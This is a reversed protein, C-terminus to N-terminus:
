GCFAVVKCSFFYIKKKGGDQFYNGKETPKTNLIIRQRKINELISYVIFLHYKDM